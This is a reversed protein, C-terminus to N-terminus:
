ANRAEKSIFEGLANLAEIYRNGNSYLWTVAVYRHSLDCWHIVAQRDFMNTVGNERVAALAEIVEQPIPEERGSM